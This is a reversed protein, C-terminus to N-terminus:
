VREGAVGAEGRSSAGAAAGRFLYASEAERYSCGPELVPPVQM